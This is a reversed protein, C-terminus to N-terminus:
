DRWSSRGVQRSFALAEMLGCCSKLSSVLLLRSFSFAVLGRPCSCLASSESHLLTHAATAEPVSYPLGQLDKPHGQSTPSPEWSQQVTPSLLSFSCSKTNPSIYSVRWVLLEFRSAGLSLNRSECHSTVARQWLPRLLDDQPLKRRYLLRPSTIELFYLKKVVGTTVTPNRCLKQIRSVYYNTKSIKPQIGVPNM